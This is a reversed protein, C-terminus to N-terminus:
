KHKFLTGAVAILAGLVLFLDALNFITKRLRKSKLKPLKIYDTTKGKSIKDHFNGFAGGLLMAHGFKEVQSNKSFFSVICLLMTLFFSLNVIAKVAKPKDKLFGYALGENYMRNIELRGKCLKKPFKEESAKDIFYKITLDIIAFLSAIGLFAM